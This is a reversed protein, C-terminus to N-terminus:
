QITMAVFDVLAQSPTATVGDPLTRLYWRVTYTVMAGGAIMAYAGQNEIQVYANSDNEPNNTYLEVEAMNPAQEAPMIDPFAKILLVNGSSVHAVWGKANSQLKTEPQNDAYDFWYAGESKSTMTLTKGGEGMAAVPDEDAAFFTLGGGPVRTVEWPAVQRAETGENRITYEVIVAKKTMDYSFKKTVSLDELRDAGAEGIKEGVLVLTMGDLTGEYEESDIESPPPWGWGTDGYQPSTWFTSGFNASDVSKGALLEDTGLKASVIRAGRMPDVEFHLDGYHIVAKGGSLYTGEMPPAAKGGGGGGGSGGGGSGGGSAGGADGGSGAAPAGGVGGVPAGGGGAAAGGVGAAPTGASGGAATGGGGSGGPATGGTAGGTSKNGGTAALGGAASPPSPTPVPPLPHESGPDCNSLGFLAPVIASLAARGLTRSASM